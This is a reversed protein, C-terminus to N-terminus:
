LSPGSRSVVELSDGLVEGFTQRGSAVSLMLAELRPACDAISQTGAILEACPFDIQETLEECATPHGSIKITPAIANVISNGVGTTFLILQAGAAAFGTLSEPTAAAADMAYLGPGPVPAGYPILGSIPRCGTKLLGGIAKEEISSLGARINTPNPNRGLLDTGDEVALRERRSVAAVLDRGLEPTAARQELSPECGLWEITEGFVAAGGADVLRDTVAGVLPNAALGSTPDSRGCELGICLESMPVSVRRVESMAVALRMGRRVAHDTFTLVDHRCDDLSVADV